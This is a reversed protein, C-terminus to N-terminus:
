EEERETRHIAVIFLATAVGAGVAAEAIAVDPAHLSYFLLSLGLSFGALLLVSSILNRLELAGIATIVLIALLLLDTM